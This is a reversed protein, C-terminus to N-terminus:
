KQVGPAYKDLEAAIEEETNKKPLMFIIKFRDAMGDREIFGFDILAKLSMDQIYKSYGFIRGIEYRLTHLGISREGKMKDLLNACFNELDSIKRVIPM